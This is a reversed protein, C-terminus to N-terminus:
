PLHMQAEHTDELGHLFPGKSQHYEGSGIREEDGKERMKRRWVPYIAYESSRVKRDWRRGIRKL